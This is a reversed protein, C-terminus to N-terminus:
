MGAPMAPLVDDGEDRGKLVKDHIYREEIPIFQLKEMQGQRHTKSSVHAYKMEAMFSTQRRISSRELLILWDSM